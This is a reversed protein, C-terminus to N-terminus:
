KMVKALKNLLDGAMPVDAINSPQEVPDEAPPIEEPESPAASAPVSTSAAASTPAVAASAGPVSVPSPAAAAAASSATSAANALPTMGAGTAAAASTAASADAKIPAAKAAVPALPTMPMAEEAGPDEIKKVESLKITQGNVMLVPGEPTYNLGTIRGEFSTKAYVKQGNSNKAEIVFRYEGPRAPTGDTNLGNWEISNSGKKLNNFDIARVENGATDKISVHVKAADNMLNFSFSHKTDGAVRAVKSSDGSVKKGIFALAQFNTSPSQAQKM